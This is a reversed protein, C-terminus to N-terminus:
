TNFTFYLGDSAVWFVMLQLINILFVKEYSLNQCNQTFKSVEIENTKEPNKQTKLAEAVIRNMAALRQLAGPGKYCRCAFFSDLQSGVILCKFVLVM